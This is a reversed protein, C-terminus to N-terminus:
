KSHFIISCTLFFVVNLSIRTRRADSDYCLFGKHDDSYGLFVCKAAQNSLKHKELSPLHVFCLCGFTRLHTYSPPSGYLSEFPSINRLVPTPLRNILYVTTHVAECWFKTPVQSEFLLAWSTELIHGHKREATGNQESTYPCYKQHIIGKNSLFSSFNEEGGM